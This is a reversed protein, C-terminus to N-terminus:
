PQLLFRQSQARAHILRALVDDDEMSCLGYDLTELIKQRLPKVLGEDEILNLDLSDM